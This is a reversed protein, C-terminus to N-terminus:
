TIANPFIISLIWILNLVELSHLFDYDMIRREKTILGFGTMKRSNGLNHAGTAQDQFSQFFIRQWTETWYHLSDIHM